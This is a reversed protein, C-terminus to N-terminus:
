KKKLQNFRLPLCKEPYLLIESGKCDLILPIFILFMSNPSLGTNRAGMSSTVSGAKRRSQLSNPASITYVSNTDLSASMREIPFVTTFSFMLSFSRGTAM